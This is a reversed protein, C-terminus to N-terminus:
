TNDVGRHSYMDCYVVAYCRGQELFWGYQEKAENVGLESSKPKRESTGEPPESAHRGEHAILPAELARQPNPNRGPPLGPRHDRDTCGTLLPRPM